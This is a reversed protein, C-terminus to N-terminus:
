YDMQGIVVLGLMMTGAMMMMVGPKVAGNCLDSDCCCVVAAVKNSCGNSDCTGGCSSVTLGTVATVTKMCFKDNPCDEKTQPLVHTKVYCKIANIVTVSVLVFLLLRILAM